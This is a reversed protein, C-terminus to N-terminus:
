WYARYFVIVTPGSISSLTVTKGSDSVLSFDPAVEGVKLADTRDRQAFAAFSLICVAMAAAFLHKTM